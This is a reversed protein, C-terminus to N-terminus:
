SALLISGSTAAGGDGSFTIGTLLQPLYLDVLRHDAGAGVTPEFVQAQGGFDQLAALHGLPHAKDDDGGRREDIGLGHLLPEDLNEQIGTRHDARGGASRAQAAM